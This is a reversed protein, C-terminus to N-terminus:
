VHLETVAICRLTPDPQCPLVSCQWERPQLIWWASKIKAWSCEAMESHLRCLFGTSFPALRDGWSFLSIFIGHCPAKCLYFCFYFFFSLFLICVTWPHLLSSLRLKPHTRLLSSGILKNWATDHRPQGTQRKKSRVGWGEIEKQTNPCNKLGETAKQVVEM